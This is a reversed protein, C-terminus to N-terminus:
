EYLHETTKNASEFHIWKSAKTWVFMNTSKRHDIIPVNFYIYIKYIELDEVHNKKCADLLKRINTNHWTSM